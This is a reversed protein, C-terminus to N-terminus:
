YVRIMERNHNILINETQSKKLGHLGFFNKSNNEGTNSEEESQFTFEDM